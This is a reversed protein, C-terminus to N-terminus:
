ETEAAPRPRARRAALWDLGLLGLLIVNLIIGPVGKFFPALVSEHSVCGCHIDLGRVEAIAKAATFVVLMIAIIARAEARFLGLILLGGAVLELWVVILAMANTAALPVLPIPLEHMRYDQIEKAFQPIDIVKQWAAALFLGGVILRALIGLLLWFRRDPPTTLTVTATASTTTATM